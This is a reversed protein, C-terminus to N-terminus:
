IEEKNILFHDLVGVGKGIKFGYKLAETIYNKAKEVSAVLNFGNALNAAIASSLTCGTGHNNNTNIVKQEFTYFVGETLLVDIAVNGKLHGGKILVNAPGLNLIKIAAEKMQEVTNAKIKSLQYTEMLNPTVLFAKPLLYYILSDIAEKKLLLHNSKSVMVPDLVVKTEFKDIEESIAQITKTNSVMGIKIADVSIDEKIAKLQAKIMDISVDEILNVGLTNQATLATIVTMAYANNASISKIDAQIGAGGSSDSGAIALVKKM